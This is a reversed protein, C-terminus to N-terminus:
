LSSADTPKKKDLREIRVDKPAEIRLNVYKGKIHKVSIRINDGITFEEGVKRTLLLAM